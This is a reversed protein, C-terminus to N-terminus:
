PMLTHAHARVVTHMDGPHDRHQSALPSDILTVEECFRPLHGTLVSPISSSSSHDSARVSARLEGREHASNTIKPSLHDANSARHATSSRNDTSDINSAWVELTFVRRASPGRSRPLRTSRAHLAARSAPAARYRMNIVLSGHRVQIM